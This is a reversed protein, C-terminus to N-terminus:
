CTVLYSLIHKYYIALFHEVKMTFVSVNFYKIKLSNYENEKFISPYDLCDEPVCSIAVDYRFILVDDNMINNYNKNIYEKLINKYNNLRIIKNKKFNM